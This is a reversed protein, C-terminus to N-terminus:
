VCERSTDFDEDENSLKRTLQIFFSFITNGQAYYPTGSTVHAIKKQRTRV